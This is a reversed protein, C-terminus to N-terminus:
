VGSAVRGLLPVGEAGFTIGFGGAISMRYTSFSFRNEIDVSSTLIAVLVGGGYGAHIHVFYHIIYSRAFM